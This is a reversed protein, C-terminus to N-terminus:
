NPYNKPGSEYRCRLLGGSSQEQGTLELLIEVAHGICYYHFVFYQKSFRGRVGLKKGIVDLMGIIKEEGHLMDGVEDYESGLNTSYGWENAFDNKLRKIGLADLVGTKEGGYKNILMKATVSNPVDNM